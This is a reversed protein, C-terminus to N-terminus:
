PAHGMQGVFQVQWIEVHEGPVGASVAARWPWAAIRWTKTGRHAVYLGEDVMDAVGIAYRLFVYGHQRLADARDDYRGPRM